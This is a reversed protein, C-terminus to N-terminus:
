DRKMYSFPQPLHSASESVNPADVDKQHSTRRRM